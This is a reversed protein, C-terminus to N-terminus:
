HPTEPSSEPTSLPSPLYRVAQMLYCREFKRSETRCMMMRSATSGNRFCEDMEMQEFVCNEIAARGIQAKRAKYSDLVDALKEQDSKTENEIDVLPRYNRWIHAYRGDPYLSESPVLPKETVHTSTASTTQPVSEPPSPTPSPAPSYKIPSEKALFDRLSPDLDRLPDTSSSANSTKNWFWGMTNIYQGQLVLSKHVKRLKLNFISSQKSQDIDEGCIGLNIGSVPCAIGGNVSKAV